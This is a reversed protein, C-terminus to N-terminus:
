YKTYTCLLGLQPPAGCVEKSGNSRNAWFAILVMLQLLMFSWVSGKIKSSFVKFSFSIESKGTYLQIPSILAYLKYWYYIM